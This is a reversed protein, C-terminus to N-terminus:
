WHLVVTWFTRTKNNCSSFSHGEQTVSVSWSHKIQKNQSRTDIWAWSMENRDKSMNTTDSPSLSNLAWAYKQSESILHKQKGKLGHASRNTEPDFQLVTHREQSSSGTIRNHPRHALFDSTFTVPDDGEVTPSLLVTITLPVDTEEEACNILAHIFFSTFVRSFM